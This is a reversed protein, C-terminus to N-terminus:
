INFCDDMCALHLVSDALDLDSNTVQVEPNGWSILQATIDATFHAKWVIPHAVAPEPPIAETSTHPQPTRPVATPGPPVEWVCFYESTNHYGDMTPQLSVIEYLRRPRKSLDEAIWQFDTLTQHIGRTLVM